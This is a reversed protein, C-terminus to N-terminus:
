ARKETLKKRLLATTIGPGTKAEERVRSLGGALDDDDPEEDFPAKDLALPVPDRTMSLTALARGAAPRPGSGLTVLREGGGGGRAPQSQCHGSAACSPCGAAEKGRRPLFPRLLIWLGWLAAATVVLFQWDLGTM